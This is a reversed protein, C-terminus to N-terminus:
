NSVQIGEVRSCNLLAFQDGNEVFYSVCFVEGFGIIKWPCKIRLNLGEGQSQTSWDVNGLLAVALRESFTAHTVLHAHSCSWSVVLCDQQSAFLDRGAPRGQFNFHLSLRAPSRGAVQFLRLWRVALWWFLGMMVERGAIKWCSAPMCSM